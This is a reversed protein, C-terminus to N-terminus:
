EFSLKEVRFGLTKLLRMQTPTMNALNDNCSWYLRRWPWLRHVYLGLFAFSYSFCIKSGLTSYDVFCSSSKNPNIWFTVQKCRFEFKFLTGSVLEPKIKAMAYICSVFCGPSAVTRSGCGSTLHDGSTWCWWGWARRNTASCM